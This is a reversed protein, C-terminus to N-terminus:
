RRGQREFYSRVQQAAVELLADIKDTPLEADRVIAVLM